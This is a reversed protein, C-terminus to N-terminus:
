LTSRPCQNGEQLITNANMHQCCNGSAIMHTSNTGLVFVFCFSPMSSGQKAERWLRKFGMDSRARAQVSRWVQENTRAFARDRARCPCFLASCTEILFRANTAKVLFASQLSCAMRPPFHLFSSMPVVSIEQENRNVMSARAISALQQPQLGTASSHSCGCFSYHKPCFHLIQTKRRINM